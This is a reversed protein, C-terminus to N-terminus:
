EVSACRNAKFLTSPCNVAKPFHALFKRSIYIYRGILHTLSWLPRNFYRKLNTMINKCKLNKSSEKNLTKISLLFLFPVLDQNASVLLYFETFESVPFHEDVM